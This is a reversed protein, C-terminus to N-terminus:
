IYSCSKSIVKPLIWIFFVIQHNEFLVNGSQFTQKLSSHRFNNSFLNGAIGWVTKRRWIIFIVSFFKTKKKNIWRTHCTKDYSCLLMLHWALICVYCAKGQWLSPLSRLSQLWSNLQLAVCVLRGVCSMISSRHLMRRARYVYCDNFADTVQSLCM